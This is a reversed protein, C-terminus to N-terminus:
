NLRIPDNLLAQRIWMRIVMTISVGLRKAEAAVAAAEDQPLAVNLAKKGNSVKVPQAM